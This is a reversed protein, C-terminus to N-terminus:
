TKGFSIAAAWYGRNITSDSQFNLLFGFNTSFSYIERDGTGSVEAIVSPRGNEDYSSVKM